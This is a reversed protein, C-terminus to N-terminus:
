YFVFYCVSLISELQGQNLTELRTTWATQTLPYLGSTWDQYIYIKQSNVTENGLLSLHNGQLDNMSFDTGDILANTGNFGIAFKLPQNNQGNWLAYWTLNFWLNGVQSTEFPPNEVVKTWSPTYPLAPNTPTEVTTGQFEWAQFTSVPQIPYYQIFDTHKITLNINANQGASAGSAWYGLSLGTSSDINTILTTIIQGLVGDEVSNTLPTTLVRVVPLTTLNGNLPNVTTQTLRLELDTTNYGQGLPEVEIECQFIWTGSSPLLIPTTGPLNQSATDQLLDQYNGEWTPVSFITPTEVPTIYRNVVSGILM